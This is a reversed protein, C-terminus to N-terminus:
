EDFLNKEDAGILSLVPKLYEETRKRYVEPGTQLALRYFRVLNTDSLIEKIEDVEGTDNETIADQAKKWKVFVSMVVRSGVNSYGHWFAMEQYQFPLACIERALTILAEDTPNDVDFPRVYFFLLRLFPNKEVRRRYMDAVPTHHADDHHLLYVFFVEADTTDVWSGSLLVDTREGLQVLQKNTVDPIPVSVAYELMEREGPCEAADELVYKISNLIDLRKIESPDSALADVVRKVTQSGGSCYDRFFSFDEESFHKSRVVIKLSDIEKRVQRNEAAIARQRARYDKRCAEIGDVYRRKYVECISDIYTDDFEEGWEKHQIGDAACANVFDVVLIFILMRKKM